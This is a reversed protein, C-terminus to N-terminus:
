REPGIYFPELFRRVEDETVVGSNEDRAMILQLNEDLAVGGLDVWFMESVYIRGEDGWEIRLDEREDEGPTYRGAELTVGQIILEVPLYEAGETADQEDDPDIILMAYIPDLGDDTSDAPQKVQQRLIFISFDIFPVRNGFVVEYDPHRQEFPLVEEIRDWVFDPDQADQVFGVAWFGAGAILIVMLLCGGGCGWLWLPIGSRSGADQIDGWDDDSM